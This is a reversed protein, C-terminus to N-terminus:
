ATSKNENINRDERTLGKPAEFRSGQSDDPDLSATRKKRRAQTWSYIQPLIFLTTLTSGFLGGMVARGLPASQKGGESWGMAMPIMGILMASSTMLIPRLRSQAGEIAAKEVNGSGELRDREAFTILLISNAVAIGIAMITGMFSEINLTTGTLVLVGLSGSLVAPITALIALSVSFSEFNGALLLFIVIVAFVLGLSLGSFMEGLSKMQGLFSIEVGRPAHSLLSKLRDKIEITAHGLDKGFLNAVVTIRRQMNYRDYEGVRKTETVKAFKGLPMSGQNVTVELSKLDNLSRISGQPVEVQVQYNIGSKPDSWFNPITFRTSSTAPVLTKGIDKITLGM